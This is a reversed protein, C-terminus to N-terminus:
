IEKMAPVVERGFLDVSRMLKKHLQPGELDETGPPPDFALDVVGIGVQDHATRLQEIIEVPTGVFHAFPGFGFHAKSRRTAEIEEVFRTTNSVRHEGPRDQLARRYMEAEGNSEAVFVRARFIIHDPTPQWGHVRCQDMYHQVQEAAFDLPEYSIGLGLHHRAAFEATEFSTGLAFAPPHPQQLPRPWVSVSRHQFYRGEWGFPEPETWAKLILEIGEQTRERTEAPNVGVVQYENPTGRLFGIVLRGNSLNDLMAAEEAIRIPNQTSVLPGLLAIKARRTRSAMFSAIVFPSPTLRASTYHHEAFSIWDFGLEEGLEMVEVAADFSQRGSALDYNRLSLPWDTGRPSEGLYRAQGWLSAKM